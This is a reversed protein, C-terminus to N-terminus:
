WRGRRRRRSRTGGRSNGRSASEAKAAEPQLQRLPRLDAADAEGFYRLIEQQRCTGSLAFRVVRNLKELEAAKRVELEAFDIELEDFPVDRRIMRIARGRFPPVYTFSELQNLERM